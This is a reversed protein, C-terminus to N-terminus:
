SQVKKKIIQIENFDALICNICADKILLGKLGHSHNFNSIKLLNRVSYRNGCAKRAELLIRNASYISDTLPVAYFYYIKKNHVIKQRM